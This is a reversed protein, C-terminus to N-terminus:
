GRSELLMVRMTEGSTARRNLTARSVPEEAKLGLADIFEKLEQAMEKGSPDYAIPIVVRPEIARTVKAAQEAPLAEPCGVPMFLVDLNGLHEALQAAPPVGLGGLHALRMEESEFIYIVSKLAKPDAEGNARLASRLAEIQVGKIEYEGPGDLVTAEGKVGPVHSHHPHDHSITVIEATPRGMDIGASRDAPDMLVTADKTRMRVAAHGLWTIDV